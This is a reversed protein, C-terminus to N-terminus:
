LIGTNGSEDEDGRILYIKNYNAACGDEVKKHFYEEGFIGCYMGKLYRNNERM